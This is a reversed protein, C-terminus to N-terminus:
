LRVVECTPLASSARCFCHSSHIIVVGNLNPKSLWALMPGCVVIRRGPTFARLAALGQGSARQRLRSAHPVAQVLLISSSDSAGARPTFPRGNDTVSGHRGGAVFSAPTGKISPLDGLGPHPQPEAM